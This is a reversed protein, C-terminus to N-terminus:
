AFLAGLVRRMVGRDVVEQAPALPTAPGAIEPARAEVQVDVVKGGQVQLRVEATWLRGEASAYLALQRVPLNVRDLRLADPGQNDILVHTVARTPHVTLYSLELRATTRTSFGLEGERTSGGIWTRRMTASSLATLTQAGAALVVETPTTMYIGVRTGPLISVPSLPRSVVTRDLLRPTLTLPQPASVAGVVRLTSGSLSRTSQPEHLHTEDLIESGLCSTIAWETESRAVLFELAGLRWYSQTGAPLDYDGWWGIRDTM